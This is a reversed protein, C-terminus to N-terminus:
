KLTSAIKQAVIIAQERTAYGYAEDKEAHGKPAFTNKDIGQMINWKAMFYVAEKAYSSIQNDDDFLKVGSCDLAYKADNALSWDAYEAKKYTRALMAAMQERTIHTDPAFSTVSTGAVINLSYAKIIENKYVSDSIDNFPNIRSVGTNTVGTLNEYLAVSIAAFEARTVKQTLEEGVLKEPILGSSYAEEVVDKAWSSVLSGFTTANDNQNKNAGKDEMECIFGIYQRNFYDVENNNFVNNETIDNWKYPKSSLVRPNPKKYIQLYHEHGFGNDPQRNDWNTYKWKEGTIWQWQGESGKDTGGLWYQYKSGKSVLEEVVKQEDDSTITVLYGGMDECYRKAETWSLNDDYILYTHGNYETQAIPQYAAIGIFSMSLIICVILSFALIKRKM